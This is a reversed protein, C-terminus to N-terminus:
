GGLFSTKLLQVIGWFSLMLFVGLLALIIFKHGEARREASAGATLYNFIVGVVAGTALFIILFVLVNIEGILRSVLETLNRPSQAFVGTPVTVTLLYALWALGSFRM